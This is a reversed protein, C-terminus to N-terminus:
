RHSQDRVLWFIQAILVYLVQHCLLLQPVQLAHELKPIGTQTYVVELKIVRSKMLVQKREKDVLLAQSVCSPAIKHYHSKLLCTLNTGTSFSTCSFYSTSLVVFLIILLKCARVLEESM